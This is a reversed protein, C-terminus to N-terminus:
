SRGSVMDLYCRRRWPNMALIDTERWGYASALTHVERLTRVAWADLESWFFSVIDLIAEWEHACLPCSMSFRVDGLPDADGMRKIVEDSIDAPLDEASLEEGNHEVAAICRNFLLQRSEKIGEVGYVAALDLSTPLRFKVEYGSIRTELIEKENEKKQKELAAESKLAELIQNINLTSELHEGCNPCDILCVLHPGFITERLKILRVDREGIPLGALEDHTVEPCAAALLLLGQEIHTQSRGKQWINLLESASTTSM